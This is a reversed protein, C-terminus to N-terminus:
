MLFRNFIIKMFILIRSWRFFCIPWELTHHLITCNERSLVLCQFRLTWLQCDFQSSKAHGTENERWSLELQTCFNCSFTKRQNLFLCKKKPSGVWKTRVVRLFIVCRIVFILYPDTWVCVVNDLLTPLILNTLNWLGGGLHFNKLPLM